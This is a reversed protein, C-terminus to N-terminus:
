GSLEPRQLILKHPCDTYVVVTYAQFYPRLKPAVIVLALAMKEAPLYRTEVPLLAKSTYYIPKQVGEQLWILMSSTAVKTLSLYIYLTEGVTPKPLIPARGLYEKM